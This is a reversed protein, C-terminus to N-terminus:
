ILSDTEFLSACTAEELHLQKWPTRLTTTFRDCNIAETPQYCFLLCQPLAPVTNNSAAQSIRFVQSVRPRDKHNAWKFNTSVVLTSRVKGRKFQLFTLKDSWLGFYVWSKFWRWLHCSVTQSLAIVFMAIGGFAVHINHQCTRLHCERM